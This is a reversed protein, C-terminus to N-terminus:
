EMEVKLMEFLAETDGTSAYWLLAAVDESGSYGNEYLFSVTEHVWNDKNVKAEHLAEEAREVKGVAEALRDHLNKVLQKDM